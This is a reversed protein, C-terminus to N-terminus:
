KVTVGELAAVTEDAEAEAQADDDAKAQAAAGEREGKRTALMKKIDAKIEKPTTEVPYGYRLVETDGNLTFTVEVNLFHEGTSIRKDRKSGTIKATETSM